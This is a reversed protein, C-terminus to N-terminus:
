RLRDLTEILNNYALAHKEPNIKELNLMKWRVAPLEAAHDLQLLTWDPKRAKFSLLFKRHRDTINAQIDNILKLRTEELIKASVDERAMSVFESEYIRRIDSIRPNLLEGDGPNFMTNAIHCDGHVIGPQYNGPINDALWQYIV